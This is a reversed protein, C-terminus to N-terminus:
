LPPMVKTAVKVQMISSDILVDVKLDCPPMPPSSEKHRGEIRRTNYLYHVGISCAM